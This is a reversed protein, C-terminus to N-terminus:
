AYRIADNDDVPMGWAEELARTLAEYEGRLRLRRRGEEYDVPFCYVGHGIRYRAVVHEEGAKPHGYVLVCCSLVGNGDRATVVPDSFARDANSYLSRWIM